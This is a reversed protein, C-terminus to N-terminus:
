DELLTFHAHTCLWRGNEKVFIRTSKGKSSFQEGNEIGYDTWYYTIWAVNEKITVEANHMDTHIFETTSWWKKANRIELDKGENLFFNNEGFSTYDPHLHSSYKEIDKKEVADWMELIISKILEEANEQAVTPITSLM